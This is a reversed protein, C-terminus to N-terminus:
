LTQTEENKPNTEKKEYLPCYKVQGMVRSYATCFIESENTEQGGKNTKVRHVGNKCTPCITPKTDGKSM